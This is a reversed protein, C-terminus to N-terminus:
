EGGDDRDGSKGNEVVEEGGQMPAQADIRELACAVATGQVSDDVVTWTINSEIPQVGNTITLVEKELEQTLLQKADEETRTKEEETYYRYTEKKIGFPLVYDGISAFTESDVQIEALGEKTQPKWLDITKDTLLLATNKKTEGTYVRETYSLPLAKQVTYWVRATVASTAHVYQTGVQLDGDMVPVEGSVLVDGQEVVDKQRVQPIGASTAISEIIGNKSAIVNCPTTRDIMEPQPITEVIHITANTGQVTVSVWSIDEFNAILMDSLKKTDINKKYKGPSLGEKACAQLVTEEPLRSVGQVEVTWIFSSLLYLGAIFFLAGAALIKRKKFKSFLFPLGRKEVIKIRCKTKRAADRLQFFGSISVKMAIGTGEPHVDWIYTGKHAVLNLFREVSFGSIIIMVYGRFYNWLMLFM